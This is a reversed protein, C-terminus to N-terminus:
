GKKAPATEVRLNNTVAGFSLGASSARMGAMQKEMNNNVVGELTVHGNYVIIHIPPVAQLAYRSLSPDRFIARAVQLRLRDDMPSLPLVELQNTVSRVGPVKQVIKGLDSKKYPQSVAGTLEVSGHDVLLNVNDWITYRPYMVIEHRVQRALAEDSQPAIAQPASGASALGAGVLLAFIMGFRGLMRPKM